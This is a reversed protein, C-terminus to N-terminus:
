RSRRPTSRRAWQSCGPVNKLPAACSVEPLKLKNDRYKAACTKSNLAVGLIGEEQIKLVTGPPYQAELQEKLSPPKPTQAFLLWPLVWLALLALIRIAVDVKCRMVMRRGAVQLSPHRM